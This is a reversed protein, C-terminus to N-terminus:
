NEPVEVPVVIRITVESLYRDRLRRGRITKEQLTYRESRPRLLSDVYDAVNAPEPRKTLDVGNSSTM